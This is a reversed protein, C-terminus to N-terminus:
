MSRTSPRVKAKLERRSRLGLKRYIGTLQNAVTRVSTGRALAIALNTQGRRARSLIERESRTLLIEGGIDAEGSGAAFALVVYEDSGIIFSRAELESPPTLAIEVSEVLSVRRASLRYRNSM